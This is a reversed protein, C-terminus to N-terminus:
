AGSRTLFWILAVWFPLSFLIGYFVGRGELSSTDESDDVARDM